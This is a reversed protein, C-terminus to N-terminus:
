ILRNDNMGLKKSKIKFRGEKTLHEKNKMMNYVFEWDKYDLQKIGLLPYKNFYNILKELKKFASVEASLLEISETQTKWKPYVKITSLNCNLFNSIDKMINFMSSSTPRDFSRQDLRFILTISASRSRKRTTSKPKFESIKIGFHGDASIFGALWGNNNLDSTDLISEKFNLSYKTNMFQILKNFIINKPTRLKNHLM